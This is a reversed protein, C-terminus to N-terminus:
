KGEIYAEVIVNYLRALRQMKENLAKLAKETDELKAKLMDNEEELSLKTENSM